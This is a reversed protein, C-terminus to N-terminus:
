FGLCFATRLLRSPHISNPAPRPLPSLNRNRLLLAQPDSSPDNMVGTSDNENREEWEENGDGKRVVGSAVDAEAM